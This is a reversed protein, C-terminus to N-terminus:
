IKSRHDIVAAVPASNIAPQGEFRAIDSWRGYVGVAISFLAFGFGAFIFTMILCPLLYLYPMRLQAAKRTMWAGAVLDMALINIWAVLLLGPNSFMQFVGNLTRFQSFTAAPPGFWFILLLAMYALALLLPIVLGTLWFNAWPQRPFVILALWGVLALGTVVFYLDYPLREM